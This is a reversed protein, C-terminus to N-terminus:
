SRVAAFSQKALLALRTPSPFPRERLPAEPNHTGLCSSPFWLLDAAAIANAMEFSKGSDIITTTVIVMTGMIGTTIIDLIIIAQISTAM